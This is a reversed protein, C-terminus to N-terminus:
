DIEWAKDTLAALASDLQELPTTYLLSENALMERISNGKGILAMDTITSYFTALRNAREFDEMNKPGKIYDIGYKDIMRKLPVQSILEERTYEEPDGDRIAIMDNIYDLARYVDWKPKDEVSISRPASAAMDYCRNMQGEIAKAPFPGDLYIVQELALLDSIEKGKKYGGVCVITNYLVDLLEARNFIDRLEEDYKTQQTLEYMKDLCTPLAMLREDKVAYKHLKSREDLCFVTKGKYAKVALEKWMDEPIDPTYGGLPYSIVIDYERELIGEMWDYLLLENFVERIKKKFNM